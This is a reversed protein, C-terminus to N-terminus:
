QWNVIHMKEEELLLYGYDYDYCFHYTSGNQGSLPPHQLPLRLCGARAGKAPRDDKEVGQLVLAFGEDTDPVLEVRKNCLPQLLSGQEAVALGVLAKHHLYAVWAHLQQKIIHRLIVRHKPNPAANFLRRLEERRLILPLSKEEKPYPISFALQEDRAMERYFYKLAAANLKIKTFIGM